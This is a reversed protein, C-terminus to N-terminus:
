IRWSFLVYEDSVHEFQFYPNINSSTCMDLSPQEISVYNYNKQSNEPCTRIVSVM